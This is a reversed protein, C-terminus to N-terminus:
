LYDGQKIQFFRKIGKQELFFYRIEGFKWSGGERYFFSVERVGSSIEKM